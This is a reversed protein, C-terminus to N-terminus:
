ANVRAIRESFPADSESLYALLHALVALADPVPPDGAFWYRGEAGAGLPARSDRMAQWFDERSMASPVENPLAVEERTDAGESRLSAGLLRVLEAPTAERGKEDFVRCGEGDADVQIRLHAATKDQAVRGVILQCATPSLLQEVLATFPGCTTELWLNLPRLGHFSPQLHGFYEAAISDRRAAPAVRVPRDLGQELRRAITELGRGASLPRGGDSWFKLGVSALAGRPNAVLLGGDAPLRAVSVALCPATAAGLDIVRCGAWRLGEAGAAVFEPSLQRGDSALLVRPGAADDGQTAHDRLTLGFARAWARTLEPTFENWAIGGVGEPHLVGASRQAAHSQDLRERARPSLTGTEHRRPCGGCDPYYAALRALHDARSITYSEGPCQFRSEADEDETM